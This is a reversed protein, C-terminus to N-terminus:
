AAVPGGSGKHSYVGDKLLGKMRLNRHNKFVQAANTGRLRAISGDFDIVEANNKTFDIFEEETLPGLLIKQTGNWFFLKGDDTKIFETKETLNDIHISLQM